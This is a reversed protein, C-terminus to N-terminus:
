WALACASRDFGDLSRASFAIWSIVMASLPRKAPVNVRRMLVFFEEHEALVTLLYNRHGIRDCFAYPLQATGRKSRDPMDGAKLPDDIVIRLMDFRLVHENLQLVVVWRADAIRL